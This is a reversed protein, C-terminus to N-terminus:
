LQYNLAHLVRTKYSRGIPLRTNNIEVGTKNFAQINPISVVCNPNIKVFQNGPLKEILTNMSESLDMQSKSLHVRARDRVEELYLIERLILKLVRKGDKAYIYSDSQKPRNKSIAQQKHRSILFKNSAKVFRKFTIPKLLFDIVDQNFADLAYKSHATTLIVSPPNAMTQIFEIGNIQPMEVDLFILDIAQSLILESSELANQFEGLLRFDGTRELFKRILERSRFEDDIILCAPKM